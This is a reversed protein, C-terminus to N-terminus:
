SVTMLPTMWQFTLRSMFGASHERSVSREKPVPPIEGWRLPNLKRYWKQPKYPQVTSAAATLASADTATSKTKRLDEENDQAEEGNEASINDDLKEGAGGDGEVTIEHFTTEQPDASTTPQLAAAMADPAKNEPHEAMDRPIQSLLAPKAFTIFM